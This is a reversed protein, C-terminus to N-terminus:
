RVRWVVVEFQPCRGLTRVCSSPSALCPLPIPLTLLLYPWTLYSSVGVQVMCGLRHSLHTPPSSQCPLSLSFLLSSSFLSFPFSFLCPLFPSSSFSFECGVESGHKRVAWVEREEEEWVSCPLISLLFMSSFPLPPSSSSLVWM